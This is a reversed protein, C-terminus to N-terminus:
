VSRQARLRAVLEEARAPKGVYYGQATDCGLHELAQLIPENEVGEAVVQLDLNHALDILSRVIKAHQPHELMSRVFSLDIKLEDLPLQALYHMSSYGTGFDDVSLKVGHHKLQRLVDHAAPQDVMMASETIEVVISSGKVGWTRLARDVYFPLDLERLNSPSVNISIRFDPDVKQFEVSHRIASTIVWQSLEDILGASEATRVALQPPVFGLTEDHWRLLSEAAVIRRKRVDLQPQFLLTLGNQQIAARLRNEYELPDVMRCSEAAGGYVRIRDRHNRASQLAYKARQLLEGAMFHPASMAIGIAVEPAVLTTGFQMPASLLALIRNAGLMAIGESSAPRLLCAFEDRSVTEVVDKQRLAHDRLVRVTAASMRDGAEFGHLADIRDIAAAHVLLLAVTEHAQESQWLSHQLRQLLSTVDSPADM